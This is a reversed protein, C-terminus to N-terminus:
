HGIIAASRHDGNLWEDHIKLVTTRGHQLRQVLDWYEQTWVRQQDAWLPLAKGKVATNMNRLFANLDDLINGLDNVGQQLFRGVDLQPEHSVDFDPM